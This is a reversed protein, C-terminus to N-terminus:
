DPESSGADLDSRGNAATATMFILVHPNNWNIQTVKGTLHVPANADFESTFPHHAFAPSAVLLLGIASTCLAKM